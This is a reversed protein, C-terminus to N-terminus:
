YLLLLATIFCYCLLIELAGGKGTRLLLILVCRTAQPCMFTPRPCITNPCMTTHPCMYLLVLVCIYYYSSVYITTHPCMYYNSVYITTLCMYLLILVCIYYYSSVYLLQVCLLILVYITIQPCMYLLQVCIYYYSSV